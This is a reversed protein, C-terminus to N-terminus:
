LRCYAALRGQLQPLRGDHLRCITSAEGLPLPPHTLLPLLQNYWAPSSGPSYPAILLFPIVQLHLRNIVERIIPVPPFIYSRPPWKKMTFADGHQAGQFPSFSAWLSTVHLTPSAFLDYQPVFFKDTVRTFVETILGYDHCTVSHRSFFDAM